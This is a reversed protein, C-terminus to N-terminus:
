KEYELERALDYRANCIKYSITGKPRWRGNGHTLVCRCGVKAKCRPCAVKYAFSTCAGKGRPSAM